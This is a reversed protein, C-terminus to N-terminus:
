PAACLGSNPNQLMEYMGRSFGGSGGLNEQKIVRFKGGLAAEAEAFGEADVLNKSGQDVVVIEAVREMLAPSAAFRRMQAVCEDVVNFTTIGVTVHSPADLHRCQAPVLRQAGTFLAGIGAATWSRTVTGVLAAIGVPAVIWALVLVSANMAEPIGGFDVLSVLSHWGTPYFGSPIGAADLNM